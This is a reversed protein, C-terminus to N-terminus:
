VNLPVELLPDNMSELSRCPEEVEQLKRLPCSASNIRSREWFFDFNYETVSCGQRMTNEDKEYDQIQTYIDTEEHTLPLGTIVHFLEHVTLIGDLGNRNFFNVINGCDRHLFKLANPATRIVAQSVDIFYCNGKHWLINYESLDAHVLEADRYITVMGEVIQKYAFALETATLNADKLKPAPINDKGLFEMLLVHKKLTVPKPCRVGAARLRTLNHLEKEAWTHIIKRPNLKSLKDKYRHDDRIYKDRTKYENLTTKFVKIACEDPIGIYVPDETEAAGGKAHLVVAEKGTSVIGHVADLVGANIWKFLQLRTKEDVAAVATSKDKKEHLRARRGAEQQSHLKLSNFVHNPLQMDFGGADGTNFDPPFAMVRKANNRSCTESDHKTKMMGDNSRVYGCRGPKVATKDNSEFTDWFIPDADDESSESEVDDDCRRYNAFSVSVKSNGNYKAEQRNLQTDYERDLERQLIRALLEDNSVDFEGKDPPIAFADLNGEIKRQLEKEHLDQALEESMVDLLSTTVEAEKPLNWAARAM